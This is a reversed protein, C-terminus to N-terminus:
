KDKFQASFFGITGTVVAVCVIIWTEVIEGTALHNLFMTIWVLFYLIYYRYLGEFLQKM